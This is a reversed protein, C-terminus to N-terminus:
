YEIKLNRLFYNLSYERQIYVIEVALAKTSQVKIIRHVNTHTHLYFNLFYNLFYKIEWHSLM